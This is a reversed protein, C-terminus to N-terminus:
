AAPEGVLCAQSVVRDNSPEAVGPDLSLPAVRHVHPRRNRHRRSLRRLHHRHREFPRALALHQDLDHRGADAVGVLELQGAGIGLAQERRDEAVLAGADHALDPRPHARHLRAVM